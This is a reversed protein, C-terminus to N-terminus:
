AVDQMRMRRFYESLVAVAGPVAPDGSDADVILSFGSRLEPNLLDQDVATCRRLLDAAERPTMTVERTTIPQDASIMRPITADHGFGGVNLNGGAVIKVISASRQYSV